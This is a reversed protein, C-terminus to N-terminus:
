LAHTLHCSASSGFIFIYNLAIYLMLWTLLYVTSTTIPTIFLLTSTSSLPLPFFLFFSPLLSVSLLSQRLSLPRSLSLSLTVSVSPPLPLCLSPSLSLSLLLFPSLTPYVSLSLPFFLLCASLLLSLPLSPSPLLCLSFVVTRDRTASEPKRQKWPSAPLLCHQM